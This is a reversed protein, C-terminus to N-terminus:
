HPGTNLELCLALTRKLSGSYRSLKSGVAPKLLNFWQFNTQIHRECWYLFTHNWTAAINSKTKRQSLKCDPLSRTSLLTKGDCNRVRFETHKSRTSSRDWNDPTRREAPPWSLEPGEAECSWCSWICSWSSRWCACTARWCSSVARFALRPPPRALAIRLVFEVAAFGLGLALWALLGLGWGPAVSGLVCCVACLEWNRSLLYSCRGEM